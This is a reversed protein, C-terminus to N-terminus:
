ENVSYIEQFLKDGHRFVRFRVHQPECGGVTGQSDTWDQIVQTNM